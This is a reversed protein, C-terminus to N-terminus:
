TPRMRFNLTFAALLTRILLRGRQSQIRKSIFNSSRKGQRAPEDSNLTRMERTFGSFHSFNLHPAMKDGVTGAGDNGFLFISRRRWKQRQWRQVDSLM